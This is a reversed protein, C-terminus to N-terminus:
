ATHFFTWHSSWNLAFPNVPMWLKRTASEDFTLPRRCASFFSLETWPLIVVSLVTCRKAAAEDGLDAVQQVAESTVGNNYATPGILNPLSSLCGRSGHLLDWGRAPTDSILPRRCASFFSVGTWQLIDVSPVTCWNGAAADGIDAVRQVAESTM